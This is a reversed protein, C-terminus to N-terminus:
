ANTAGGKHVLARPFLPPPPGLGDAIHQRLAMIYDDREEEREESEALRKELDNIRKEYRDMLRNERAAPVADKGGEAKSKRTHNAYAALGGPGIITGLILTIGVLSFGSGEAEAAAHIVEIM